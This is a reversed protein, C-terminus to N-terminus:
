SINNSRFQYDLSGCVLQGETFYMDIYITVCMCKSLVCVYILQGVLKHINRYLVASKSSPHVTTCLAIRVVYRVNSVSQTIEGVIGNWTNDGAQTGFNGDGVEYLTYTFGMIEALRELLDICFGEYETEM